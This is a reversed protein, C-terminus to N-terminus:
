IQLAQYPKDESVYIFGGPRVIWEGPRLAEVDFRGDVKRPVLGAYEYRMGWADVVHEYIPVDALYGVVPGESRTVALVFYEVPINRHWVMM